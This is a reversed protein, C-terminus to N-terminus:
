TGAQSGLNLAIAIGVTTTSDFWEWPGAQVPSLSTYFPYLGDYGNNILDAQATFPDNFNFTNFPANNGLETAKRIVTHSGSVDVVPDGTTPVIVTGEAYPAFPDGPVHFAL